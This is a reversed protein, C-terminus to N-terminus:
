QTGRKANGNDKEMLHTHVAAEVAVNSTRLFSPMNKKVLTEIKIRDKESLANYKKEAEERRTQKELDAQLEAAKKAKDRKAQKREEIRRLTHPVYGAPVIIEKKLLGMLLRQYNEIGKGNYQFKIVDITLFLKEPDTTKLLQLLSKKPIPIESPSLYFVSACKPCADVERKLIDRHVVPDEFEKGCSFCLLATTTKTHLKLNNNEDTGTVYGTIRESIGTNGDSLPTKGESMGEIYKLTGAQCVGKSQSPDCLIYINSRGIGKNSHMVILNKQILGHLARIVTSVSISAAKAITNHAPFIRAPNIAYRKLVIYVLKEHKNLDQDFLWNDVVTYTRKSLDFIFGNDDLTATDGNDGRQHKVAEKGM